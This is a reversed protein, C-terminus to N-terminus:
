RYFKWGRNELQQLVESALTNLWNSHDDDLEWGILFALDALLEARPHNPCNLSKSNCQSKGPRVVELDCKGEFDCRRWAHGYEDEVYGYDESM